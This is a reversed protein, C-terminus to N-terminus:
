GINGRRDADIIPMFESLIEDGTKKHRTQPTSPNNNEAFVNKLFDTYSLTEEGQMRGGLTKMLWMPFLRKEIESKQHEEEKRKAASLLTDLYSLPLESIM